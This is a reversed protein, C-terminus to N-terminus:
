LHYNSLNIVLGLQIDDRVRVVLGAEELRGDELQLEVALGKECAPLVDVVAGDCTCPVFVQPFYCLKKGGLLESLHSRIVTDSM